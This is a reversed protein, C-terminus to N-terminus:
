RSAIFYGNRPSRKRDDRERSLYDVYDAIIRTEEVNKKLFGNLEESEQKECTSICRDQIDEINRM